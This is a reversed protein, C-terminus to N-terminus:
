NFGQGKCFMLTVQTTQAMDKLQSRASAIKYQEPDPPHNHEQTVSIADDKVTIRGTCKSKYLICRYAIGDTLTKAKVYAYGGHFLKVGNRQTALNFHEM